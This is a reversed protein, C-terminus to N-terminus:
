LKFEEGTTKYDAIEYCINMNDAIRVLSESNTVEICQGNDWFACDEGHCHVKGLSSSMRPCIKSTSNDSWENVENFIKNV